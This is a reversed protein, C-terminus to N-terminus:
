ACGVARALMGMEVCRALIGEDWVAKACTRPGGGLTRAWGSILPVWQPIVDEALPDVWNRLGGLWGSAPLGLAFRHVSQDTM